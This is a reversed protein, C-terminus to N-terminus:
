TTIPFGLLPLMPLSVLFIRSAFPINSCTIVFARSSVVSEFLGASELYLFLGGVGVEGVGDDAASSEVDAAVLVEVGVVDAGISCSNERVEKSM